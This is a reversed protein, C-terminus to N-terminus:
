RSELGLDAIPLVDGRAALVEPDAGVTPLDAASTWATALAAVARQLSFRRARALAREAMARRLEPVAVLADIADLVDGADIPDVYVAADRWVERLSPIDGLVLAAGSLAADLAGPGFPEYRAPSAFVPARRLAAELYGVPVVAVPAAALAAVVSPDAAGGLLVAPPGDATTPTLEREDRGYPVVRVTGLPGYTRHALEAAWRTPTIVVSAARLAAAIRDRVAALRASLREGRTLEWKAVPCHRLVTVRPCPWASLLPVPGDLHVLSPRLTDCLRGLWAGVRPDITDSERAFGAEHVAVNPTARLASRHPEPVRGYPSAISVRVGRSALLRAVALVPRWLGGPEITVMLSGMM